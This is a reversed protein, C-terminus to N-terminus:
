GLRKNRVWADIFELSAERQHFPVFRDSWVSAFHLIVMAVIDELLNRPLNQM